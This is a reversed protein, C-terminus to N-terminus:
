VKWTWLLFFRPGASLHKRKLFLEFRSCSNLFWTQDTARSVTTMKEVTLSLSIRATLSIIHIPCYIARYMQESACGSQSCKMEEDTDDALIGHAKYTHSLSYETACKICHIDFKIGNAANAKLCVKIKATSWGLGADRPCREQLPGTARPGHCPQNLNGFDPKNGREM